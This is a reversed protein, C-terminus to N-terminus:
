DLKLNAAKVVRAWKEMDARIFDAFDKETTITPVLGLKALDAIVEPQSLIDLAALHIKNRIDAPTKAPAVLGYWYDMDFGPVGAEIFTPVDPMASSRKKGTQAIAVLQGSKVIGAVAPLPAFLVMDRQQGLMDATVAGTGKYPVHTLKIKTEFIFLEAAMHAGSGAGASGFNIKGPSAKALRVLDGASKVASSPHVVLVMPAAALATVGVFDREVNYPLKPYLGPNIGIESVSGVLLTKGDPAARAVFQAGISGSAGPKNEIAVTTGLKEAIKPMIRRALVDTGGGPAFPIIVNIPRDATGQAYSASPSIATLATALLAAFGFLIKTNM